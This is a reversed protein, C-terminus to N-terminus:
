HARSASSGEPLQYDARWGYSTRVFRLTHLSPAATSSMSWQLSATAVEGSFKVKTVECSTYQARMAPSPPADRDIRTERSPNSALFELDEKRVYFFAGRSWEELMSPGPAELMQFQCLFLAKRSVELEDRVALVSPAEATIRSLESDSPFSVHINFTYDVQVPRNEVMAPKYRQRSLSLLVAESLFPLARTVRCRTVRGTPPIVCRASFLGQSRVALAERPFRIPPGSLLEPRTVDQARLPGAPVFPEEPFLASSPVEELAPDDAPNVTLNAESTEVSELPVSVREAACGPLALSALFLLGLSMWPLCRPLPSQQARRSPLTHLFM